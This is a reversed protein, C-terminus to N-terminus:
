HRDGPHHTNTADGHAGSPGDQKPGSHDGRSAGPPGESPLGTPTPTPSSAPASSPPAPATGSSSGAPTSSPPATPTSPSAGSPTSPHRGTGTGTAPSTSAGGDACYEQVTQRQAQAAARLETVAPSPVGAAPSTTGAGPSAAGAASCLRYVDAAHLYATTASPTPHPAAHHSPNPVSIGLHSLGDSVASQIPAPLSGTAAAAAFGGGVGVAATAVAMKFTLLKALKLSLPKALLRSGGWHIGHWVAAPAKVAAAAAAVVSAEGALESAAAPARATQVLTALERYGPPVDHPAVKGGWFADVTAEDFRFGHMEAGVDDMPSM